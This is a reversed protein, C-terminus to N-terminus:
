AADNTRDKGDRGRKALTWDVCGDGPKQALQQENSAQLAAVTAELAAVAKKLEALEAKIPEQSKKVAAVVQRGFEAGDFM